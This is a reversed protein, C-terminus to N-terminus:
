VASSSVPIGSRPTVIRVYSDQPSDVNKQMDLRKRKKHLALAVVVVTGLVVGVAAVIALIIGTSPRGTRESGKEMVSAESTGPTLLESQALRQNPPEVSEQTVQNTDQSAQCPTVLAVGADSVQAVEDTATTDISTIDAGASISQDTSNSSAVPGSPPTQVLTSASGFTPTWSQTPISLSCPTANQPAQGPTAPAPPPIGSQPAQSTFPTTVPANPTPGLPVHDNSTPGLPVPANPTPGLPVHDNPTPGLPVSANPTPDLPLPANPTPDIAQTATTPTSIPSEAPDPATVLTQASDIVSFQSAGKTCKDAVMSLTEELVEGNIGKMSIRVSTLDAVQTGHGNLLFYFASDVMSTKRGNISLSEVGSVCNTPQVAVWFPSSGTKLCYQVNETVPCPAFTWEISLITNTQGTISQFVSPSLDLGGPKCSPCQDVIYVLEPQRGACSADTCWVKACRGCNMTADWQHTNLAAYKTAADKPWSMFNCNGDIPSDLTYTTGFGKFTDFASVIGLCQCIAIVSFPIVLPHLSTM